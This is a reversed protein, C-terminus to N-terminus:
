FYEEISTIARAVADYGKFPHAERYTKYANLKDKLGQLQDPTMDDLLVVHDAMFDKAAGLIQAVESRMKDTDCKALDDPFAASMMDFFIEKAIAGNVDAYLLSKVLLNAIGRRVQFLPFTLLHTRLFRYKEPNKSGWAFSLIIRRAERSAVEEDIEGRRYRDLVDTLLCAIAQLFYEEKKPSSERVAQTLFGLVQREIQSDGLGSFSAAVFTILDDWSAKEPNQLLHLLMLRVDSTRAEDSSFFAKAIATFNADGSGAFCEISRLRYKRLTEVRLIDQREESIPLVDSLCKAATDVGFAVAAGKNLSGQSTRESAISPPMSAVPTPVTDTVPAAAFGMLAVSIVGGVPHIGAGSAFVPLHIAM